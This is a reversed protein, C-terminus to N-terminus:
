PAKPARKRLEPLEAFLGALADVSRQLAVRAADVSATALEIARLSRKDIEVRVALPKKRM